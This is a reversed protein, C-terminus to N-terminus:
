RLLPTTSLEDLVFLLKMFDQKDLNYKPKDNPYLVRYMEESLENLKEQTMTRTTSM